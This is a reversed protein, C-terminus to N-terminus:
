EGLPIELVFITPFEDNSDIWVHGGHAELALRCFYLGLELRNRTAVTSRADFIGERADVPIPPGTNAIRITLAGDSRASMFIRGGAPTHRFANDVINEIARTIVDADIFLERALQVDARFLVRTQQMLYRRGDVIQAALGDIRTPTRDLTFRGSEMRTMDLLNAILRLMRRSASAADILADTKEDVDETLPTALVYELSSIVVSLPNRLDHAALASVEDRFRILETLEANRQRLQRTEDLTPDHETGSVSL